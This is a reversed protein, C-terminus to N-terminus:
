DPMQAAATDITVLILLLATAAHKMTGEGCSVHGYGSSTNGDLSTKM